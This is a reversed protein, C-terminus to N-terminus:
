AVRLIRKVREEIHQLDDCPYRRLMNAVEIAVTELRVNQNAKEIERDVGIDRVAPHSTASM